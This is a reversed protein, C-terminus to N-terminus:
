PKRDAVGMAAATAALRRDVTWLPLRSLRAAALLHVDVIGVGRGMLRESDILALIEDHGAVSVQPLQRLLRLILDRRSLNGCALEGVILPHCAVEQRTLMAALAANGVRLHALWVSTDVLVM